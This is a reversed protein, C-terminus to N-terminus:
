ATLRLEATQQIIEVELREQEDYLKTLKQIVSDMLAQTVGGEGKAFLNECDRLYQGQTFIEHEVESQRSTLKKFSMADCSKNQHAHRAFQAEYITTQSLRQKIEAIQKPCEIGELARKFIDREIKLARDVKQKKLM